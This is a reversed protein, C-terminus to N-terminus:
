WGGGCGNQDPVAIGYSRILRDAVQIQLVRQRITPTGASQPRGGFAEYNNINIGVSDPYEGGPHALREGRM